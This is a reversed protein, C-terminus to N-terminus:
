PGVADFSPSTAPIAAASPATPVAARAAAPRPLRFPAHRGTFGTAMGTDSLSALPASTDNHVSTGVTAAQAAAAATAPAAYVPAAAPAATVALATLALVGAKCARLLQRKRHSM